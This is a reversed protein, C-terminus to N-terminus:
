SGTEAREIIAQLEAAVDDALPAPRHGALIDAALQQAKEFAGPKGGELWADYSARDWVTPRWIEKMHARTHKEALYTGNPGVRTIVDLALQEDDVVIGQALRQVIRYVETEMVLHPYSLMKSGDLMGAGSMTDAGALVSAATSFADDVASQWGPEKAGTAMTGMNVPLGFSHALQTAAAALVYDEPGGGTYGGSRLDMVSPAGGFIVPAGPSALQLLVLDAIVGAANVVLNGAYTAPATGCAMTLSLFGCPLGAEAFVLGAELSVADNGLPDVPCAILSVIPRRRLEDHGGCTAAAMEVLLRAAREGVTTVAQYHKSTNAFVARAEHLARTAPPADGAAVIPGWYFSVQPLADAFRASEAVDALTSPRKEGSRPDVVFVGSADTSLYSHRGDLPLDCAPDRGCLSFERPAQALAGEVVNRPLRATEHVRDVACGGAELVDLARALPFRVGAEALVTFVGERVCDLQSPTLVDWSSRRVIPDVRM